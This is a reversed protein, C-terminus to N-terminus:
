SSCTNGLGSHAQRRRLSRQRSPLDLHLDPHIHQRTVRLHYLYYHLLPKLLSFFQSLSSLLLIPLLLFILPLLGILLLPSLLTSNIMITVTMTTTDDYYDPSARLRLDRSELLLDLVLPRRPVSRKLV